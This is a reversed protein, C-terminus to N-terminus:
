IGKARTILWATDPCSSVISKDVVAASGEEPALLVSIAEEDTPAHDSALQVADGAPTVQLSSNRAGGRSLLGSEAM